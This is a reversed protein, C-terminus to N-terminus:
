TERESSVSHATDCHQTVLGLTSRGLLASFKYQRTAESISQRNCVGRKSHKTVPQRTFVTRFPSVAKTQYDVTLVQGTHTKAKMGPTQRLKSESPFPLPYISIYLSMDRDAENKGKQVEHGCAIKYKTNPSESSGHM